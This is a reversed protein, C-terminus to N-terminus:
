RRHRTEAGARLDPGCRRSRGGPVVDPLDGPDSGSVCLRGDSSCALTATIVWPQPSWFSAAANRHLDQAREPRPDREDGLRQIGIEM